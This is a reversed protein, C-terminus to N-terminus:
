LHQKLDNKPDLGHSGTSLRFARKEDTRIGRREFAKSPRGGCPPQGKPKVEGQCTSAAVPTHTHKTASLVHNQADHLQQQLYDRWKKLLHSTGTMQCLRDWNLYRFAAYSRYSEREKCFVKSEKAPYLFGLSKMMQLARHARKKDASEQGQYALEALYGLDPREMHGTPRTIRILGTKLDARYLLAVTMALLSESGDKRLRRTRMLSKALTYGAVCVCLCIRHFLSTKRQELAIVLQEKVADIVNPFKKCTKPQLPERYRVHKHPRANKAPSTKSQGLTRNLVSGLAQMARAQIRCRSVADRKKAKECRVRKCPKAPSPLIPKDNGM